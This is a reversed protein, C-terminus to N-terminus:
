LQKESPKYPCGLALFGFIIFCDSSLVKSLMVGILPETGEGTADWILLIDLGFLNMLNIPPRSRPRLALASFTSKTICWQNPELKNENNSSQRTQAIQKQGM